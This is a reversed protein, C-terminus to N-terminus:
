VKERTKEIRAWAHNLTALKDNAIAVFEPPVGRAIMKDPHNDHVLKRFHRRIEHYPMSRDVGLIVYPDAEGLDVHRALIRDYDAGTFGFIAAVRELFQAEKDHIVGDAKAIHFLGDLIDELAPCGLQGSGCMRSMSRAYAEFGAVDEMALRYLRRVNRHERQPISFIEEFARVEDQTVVGDAKAMKASLAIMAVSFAVRRRTEPDGEFVTRVAEVVGSLANSSVRSVFLGLKEWISM